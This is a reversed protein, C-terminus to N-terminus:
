RVFWHQRMQRRASTDNADAGRPLFELDVFDADPPLPTNMPRLTLASVSRAHRAAENSGATQDANARIAREIAMGNWYLLEAGPGFEPDAFAYGPVVRTVLYRRRDDEYFPAVEFPLYAINNQYPRPLQYGTHLDRVSNFIQTLTNHFTLEDQEDAPITQRRSSGASSCECGSSPDFRM